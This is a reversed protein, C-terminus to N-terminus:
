AQQKSQSKYNCVFAFFFITLRTQNSSRCGAAKQCLERQRAGTKQQEIMWEKGLRKYTPLFNRAAFKKFIDHKEWVSRIYKPDCLSPDAGTSNDATHDSFLKRLLLGEEGKSDWRAREAM